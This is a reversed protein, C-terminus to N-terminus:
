QAPFITFVVLTSDVRGTPGVQWIGHGTETFPSPRVLLTQRKLLGTKPLRDLRILSDTRTYHGTVVDTAIFASNEYRFTGDAQFVLMTGAVGSDYSAFLVIPSTPAEMAYHRYFAYSGFALAMVGVLGASVSFFINVFRSSLPM